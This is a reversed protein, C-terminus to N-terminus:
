TPCWGFDDVHYVTPWDEAKILLALIYECAKEKERRVVMKVADVGPETETLTICIVTALPTILLYLQEFTNFVYSLQPTSSDFSFSFSTFLIVIYQTLAGQADLSFGFMRWATMQQGM